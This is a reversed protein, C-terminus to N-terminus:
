NNEHLWTTAENQDTFYKMHHRGSAKLVFDIMVKVVRSNGLVATIGLKKNDMFDGVTRRLNPNVRGLETTDIFSKIREGEPIGDLIGTLDQMYLNLEEQTFDGTISVQLIGEDDVHLTYAM